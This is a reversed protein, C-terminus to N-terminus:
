KTEYKCQNKIEYNILDLKNFSDAELIKNKTPVLLSYSIKVIIHIMYNVQSTVEKLKM